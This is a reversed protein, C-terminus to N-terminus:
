EGVSRSAKAITHPDQHGLVVKFGDAIIRCTARTCPTHIANAHRLNLKGIVPLVAAKRNERVSRPNSHISLSAVVTQWLSDGLSDVNRLCPERTKHDDIIICSQEFSLLTNDGRGLIGTILNLNSLFLFSQETRNEAAQV